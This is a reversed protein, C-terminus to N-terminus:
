TKSLYMARIRDLEKSADLRGEVTSDAHKSYDSLLSTLKLVDEDGIEAKREIETLALVFRQLAMEATIGTDKNM